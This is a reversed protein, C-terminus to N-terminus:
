LFAAFFPAGRRPARDLGFSDWTIAQKLTQQKKKRRHYHERVSLLLSVPAIFGVESVQRIHYNVLKDHEGLWTAARKADIKSRRVNGNFPSMMMTMMMMAMPQFILTHMFSEVYNGEERGGTHGQGYIVTLLLLYSRHQWRPAQRDLPSRVATTYYRSWLRIIASLVKTIPRKQHPKLFSRSVAVYITFAASKQNANQNTKDVRFPYQSM